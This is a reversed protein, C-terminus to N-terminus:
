VDNKRMDDKSVDDRLEYLADLAERPTMADPNLMAIRQRLAEGAEAAPNELPAFLPLPSAASVQREAMKLLIEARKAITEPVGALRAV